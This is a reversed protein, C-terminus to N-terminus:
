GFLLPHFWRLVVTVGIAIMLRLAGVEQLAKGIGGRTFPLFPTAKVYADYGQLGAALKRQDQHRCGVIAFLPLGGFFAVDSAFGNPVMHLLGLLGFGMFLPHRTIRAVGRVDMTGGTMSAPSPQLLGLVALSMAIGILLYLLGQTGPGIPVAWLVPGSHKHGLYVRVLPVFFALSILSYVGLFAREGLRDVLVARWRISSLGIHTAAFGLWLLVIVLTANM